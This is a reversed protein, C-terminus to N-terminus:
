HGGFLRKWWSRQPQGGQEEGEEEEYYTETPTRYVEGDDGQVKADLKAAMELMKAIIKEDPNKTEISGYQASYNFWPDPYQCEGSWLVFLPGHFDNAFRLEPDAEVLEQWQGDTISPGEEDFHYKRRTIYVNYGM